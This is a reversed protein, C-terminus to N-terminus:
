NSSEIKGDNIIIVGDKITGKESVTIIKKAGCAFRYDKMIIM